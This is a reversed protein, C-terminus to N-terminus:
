AQLQEIIDDPSTTASARRGPRPSPHRASEDLPTPKRHTSPASFTTNRRPPRVSGTVTVDPIASIATARSELVSQRQIIQDLKSSFQEQDLMQRSTTLDIRARLEAIRDEYAYQMQAKRAV